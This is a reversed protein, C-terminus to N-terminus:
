NASSRRKSWWDRWRQIAAARGAADAGPEPGFDSGGSLRVLARRAAQQVDTEDDGLLDILETQLALKRTGAVQAAAARIDPQKDALMTKVSTSKQRMLHKVLLARAQERSETEGSAAAMALTNAVVPGERKELETLLAQLKPGRENKAAAALESVTMSRPLKTSALGGSAALKRQVYTRRLMAGVQLDKAVGMHRRAKVGAGINEKAFTLLEVDETRSLVSAIKKGIVVAPCSHEMEAARNFGDILQFIAEPGLKNFDSLAKAGETKSLKGIDYLIFRDIVKEIRTEEQKTLLPVSPAFPHRERPAATDACVMVLSLLTAAIM